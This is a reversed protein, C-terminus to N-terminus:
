QHRGALSANSQFLKRALGFTLGANMLSIVQHREEYFERKRLTGKVYKKQEAYEADYERKLGLYKRGKRGYYKAKVYAVAARESLTSIIINGDADVNLTEYIVMVKGDHNNGFDLYGDIESVTNSIANRPIECGNCKYWGSNVYVYEICDIYASIFRVYGCPKKVRGCEMDLEKGTIAYTEKSDIHVMGQAIWQEFIFNLSSNNEEAVEYKALEVVRALHIHDNYQNSM